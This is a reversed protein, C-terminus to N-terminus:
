RWLVIEQLLIIVQVQSQLDKIHQVAMDLMEATNTQQLCELWFLLLVINLIVLCCFILLIIYLPMWKKFSFVFFFLFLDFVDVPIALDLLSWELPNRPCLVILPGMVVLQLIFLVSTQTARKWNLYTPLVWRFWVIWPIPVLDALLRYVPHTFIENIKDKRNETIM